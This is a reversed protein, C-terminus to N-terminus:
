KKKIKILSENNFEYVFNGKSYRSNGNKMGLFSYRGFNIEKFESLSIKQEYHCVLLMFFDVNGFETIHHKIYKNDYAHPTSVYADSQLNVESFISEYDEGWYQKAEKAYDAIIKPNLSKIHRSNKNLDDSFRFSGLTGNVFFLYSDIKESYYEGNLDSGKFELVRELFKLSFSKNEIGELLIDQLNYSGFEFDFDFDKMFIEVDKKSIQSIHDDTLAVIVNSTFVEVITTKVPTGKNNGTFISHVQDYNYGLYTTIDNISNNGIKQDLKIFEGDKNIFTSM